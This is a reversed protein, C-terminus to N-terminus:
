EVGKLKWNVRELEEGQASGYTQPNWRDMQEKSKRSTKEWITEFDSQDV